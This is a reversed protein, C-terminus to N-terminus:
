NIVFAMLSKKIIISWIRSPRLSAEDQSSFVKITISREYETISLSMEMEFRCPLITALMKAKESWTHVMNTQPPFFFNRPRQVLFKEM